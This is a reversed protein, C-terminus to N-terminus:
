IINFILYTYNFIFSSMAKNLKDDIAIRTVNAINYHSLVQLPLHM